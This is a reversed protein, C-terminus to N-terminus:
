EENLNDVGNELIKSSIMDATHTYLVNPYKKIAYDFGEWDETEYAGMHYRICYLEENTLPVFRSAILASLMGHGGLKLEPTDNYGWGFVNGNQEDRKYLDLKCLDHFLGVIIPSDPSEWKLNLKQTLEVLTKAVNVSHLLLGGTFNLHYKISAPKKDFGNELICDLLNSIECRRPSKELTACLKNFEAIVNTKDM